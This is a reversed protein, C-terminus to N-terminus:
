GPPHQAGAGRDAASPRCARGPRDARCSRPAAAFAACTCPPGAGFVPV